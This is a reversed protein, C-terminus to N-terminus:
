KELLKDWWFRYDESTTQKIPKAGAPLNAQITKAVFEAYKKDYTFLVRKSPSWGSSSSYTELYVTYPDPKRGLLIGWIILGVGAVYFLFRADEVILSAALFMMIIGGFITLVSRKTNSTDRNLRVSNENSIYAIKDPFGEYSGNYKVCENTIVIWNDKYPKPNNPIIQSM